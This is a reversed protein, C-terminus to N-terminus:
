RKCAHAHAQEKRANAYTYIHTCAHAHANAYTYIHMCTHIQPRMRVQADATSQVLIRFVPELFSDLLGPRQHFIFM